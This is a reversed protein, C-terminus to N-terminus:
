RQHNGLMSDNDRTRKDPDSRFMARTFRPPTPPQPDVLIRENHYQVYQIGITHGQVSRLEAPDLRVAGYDLLAHHNPCVVIINEAIDPGNHPKGLPQIHHAESYPDGTPLCLTQGCLQCVGQHLNKVRRGLDTDRLIRYAQTLVRQPTEPEQFDTALQTETGSPTNTRNTEAEEVGALVQLEEWQDLTVNYVGGGTAKAISLTGLFPNNDLWLPLNPATIYRIQVRKKRDNPLPPKKWFPNQSDDRIAPDSMVEAFAVVGRQDNSDLTQWIIALDGARVNREGVTWTDLKLERIADRIRYMSPNSSFALMKPRRIVEFDLSRLQRASTDEGGSFNDARLRGSGPHQYGHAVGAIAMSDYRNGQHLIFYERAPGFGYKRLFHDRGIRDFEEIAKLVADRDTLDRLGM